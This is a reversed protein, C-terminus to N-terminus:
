LTVVEHIATEQAALILQNIIHWANPVNRGGENLSAVIHHTGGAAGPIQMAGPRLRIKSHHGIGTMRREIRPVRVFEYECGVTVAAASGIRGALRPPAAAAASTRASSQAGAACAPVLSSRKGFM